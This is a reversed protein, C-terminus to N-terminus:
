GTAPDNTRRRARCGLVVAALERELGVALDRRREVLGLAVVEEVERVGGM